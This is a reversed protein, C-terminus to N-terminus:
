ENKIEKKCSMTKGNSRRTRPKLLAGGTIKFEKVTPDSM